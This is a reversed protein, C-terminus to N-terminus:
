SGACPAARGADQRDKDRCEPMPRSGDIKLRELWAPGPAAPVARWNRQGTPSPLQGQGRAPTPWTPTRRSISRCARARPGSSSIQLIAPAASAATPSCCTRSFAAQRRARAPAQRRGAAVPRVPRFVAGLSRCRIDAAGPGRPARRDQPRLAQGPAPGLRHRRDESDVPRRHRRRAEEGAGTGRSTELEFGGSGPDRVDQVACPQWREVAAPRANRAAADPHDARGLRRLLAPGKHKEHFAIGHRRVLDIFDQSGYRALASRCFNPNESLFNAPGVDRNTFNCRGGGSIRIKEALKEAHDILLVKLGRQGAIGACFLGAAGAGVVVLDFTQMSLLSPPLIRREASAANDWCARHPWSIGLYKCSRLRSERHEQIGDPCSCCPPPPRSRAFAGQDPSSRGEANSPNMAEPLAAM